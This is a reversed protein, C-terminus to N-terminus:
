LGYGKMIKVAARQANGSITKPRNQGESTLHNKKWERVCSNIMRNRGALSTTDCPVMSYEEIAHDQLEVPFMKELKERYEEANKAQVSERKKFIPFIDELSDIENARGHVQNMKKKAMIVPTVGSILSHSTILCFFLAEKRFGKNKLIKTQNFM